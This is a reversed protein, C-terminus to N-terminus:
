MPNIHHPIPILSKLQQHQTLPRQYRTGPVVNSMQFYKFRSKLSYNHNIMQVEGLFKLVCSIMVIMKMIGLMMINDKFPHPSSLLLLAAVIQRRLKTTQAACLM